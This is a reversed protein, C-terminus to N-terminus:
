SEKVYGLIDPHLHEAFLQKFMYYDFKKLELEESFEGHATIELHPNKIETTILNYQLRNDDNPKGSYIQSRELYWYDYISKLTEVIPEYLKEELRHRAM